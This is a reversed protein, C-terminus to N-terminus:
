HIYVASNDATIKIVIPFLIWFKLFFIHKEISKSSAKEDETERLHIPHVPDPHFCIKSEIGIRCEAWSVLWAADM